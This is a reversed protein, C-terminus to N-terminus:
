VNHKTPLTAGNNVACLALRLGCRSTKDVDQQARLALLGSGLYSAVQLVPTSAM